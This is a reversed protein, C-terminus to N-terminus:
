VHCEAQLVSSQPAHQIPIANYWRGTSSIGQDPNTRLGKQPPLPFTSKPSAIVAINVTMLPM